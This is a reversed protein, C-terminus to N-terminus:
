FRNLYAINNLKVKERKCRGVHYTVWEEIPHEKMFQERYDPTFCAVQKKYAEEPNILVENVHSIKKGHHGKGILSLRSFYFSGDITCAIYERVSLRESVISRSEIDRVQYLYKKGKLQKTLVCKRM